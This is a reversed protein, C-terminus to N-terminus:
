EEIGNYNIVEKTNSNLVYVAIFWFWDHTIIAIFFFCIQILGVWGLIERYKKPYKM